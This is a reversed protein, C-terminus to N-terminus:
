IQLTVENEDAGEYQLDVTSWIFNKDMRLWVMGYLGGHEDKLIWDAHFVQALTIRMYMLNLYTTFDLNQLTMFLM